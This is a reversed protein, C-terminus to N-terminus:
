LSMLPDYVFNNYVYDGIVASAAGVGFPVIIDTPDIMGTALLIGYVGAGGVALNLLAAETDGLQQYLPLKSLRYENVIDTLVSSATCIGGVITSGSAVHGMFAVDFGGGTALYAAVGGAVGYIAPKILYKGLKEKTDTSLAM